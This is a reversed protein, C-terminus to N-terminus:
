VGYDGGGAYIAKFLVAKRKQILYGSYPPLQENQQTYGLNNAEFQSYHDSFSGGLLISTGAAIMKRIVSHGSNSMEVASGAAFLSFENNKVEGILNEITDAEESSAHSLWKTIDDIILITKEGDTAKRIAASIRENTNDDDGASVVCLGQVDGLQKNLVRLLNTKGSGDTGSILLIRNEAGISVAAIEDASLGIALAGLSLHKIHSMLVIDPMIPIEKPLAGKWEAAIQECSRKIKSVYEVDNAAKVALATQFEMPPKGRVLGRGAIKSPELGETDGVVERYDAKETMRLALAQKFNQSLNFGINGSLSTASLVLYIGYGSGERSLRVFTAEIDPYLERIPAFNDVIVVIVPM